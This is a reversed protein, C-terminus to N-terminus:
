ILIQHWYSSYISIIIKYVLTLYNFLRVLEIRNAYCVLEVFMTDLKGVIHEIFLQIARVRQWSHRCLSPLYISIIDLVYRIERTLKTNLEGLTLISDIANQCLHLKVLRDPIYQRDNPGLPLALNDKNIVVKVAYLSLEMYKSSYKDLLFIYM